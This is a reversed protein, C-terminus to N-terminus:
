QVHSQILTQQTFTLSARLHPVKFYHHVAKDGVASEAQGQGVLYQLYKEFGEKNRLFRMAIDDDTVCENLTPLFARRCSAVTPTIVVNHPGRPPM